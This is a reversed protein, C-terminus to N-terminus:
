SHRDRPSIKARQIKAWLEPNARELPIMHGELDRKKAELYQDIDPKHDLYFAIAGYIQSLKLIPFNELITEPSEGGIFSHVISDLSVRVGKIYYGGNPRQEVYESTM